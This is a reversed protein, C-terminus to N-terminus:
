VISCMNSLLISMTGTIYEDTLNTVNLKLDPIAKVLQMGSQSVQILLRSPM